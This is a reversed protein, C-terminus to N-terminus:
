TGESSQWKAASCMDCFLQGGETDRISFDISFSEYSDKTDVLWNGEFMSFADVYVDYDWLPGDARNYPLMVYSDPGRSSSQYDLIGTIGDDDKSHANPLEENESFIIDQKALVSVSEDIYAMAGIQTAIWSASIIDSVAAREGVVIICNPTGTYSDIFFERDPEPQAGIQPALSILLLAAVGVMLRNTRM